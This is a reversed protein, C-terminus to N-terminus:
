SFVRLERWEAVMQEPCSDAKGFRVVRELAAVSMRVEAITTDSAPRATWGLGAADLLAGMEVVGPASINLVPPLNVQACLASLVRALTQPGIYSRRPTRGDALRDLVFGPHWRGLIADAGAVNGIRLATVQVGLQAGLTACAEEMDAKARGYESVPKLPAAENLPGPQDGYVAASSAVLVRAGTEAGARIAATALAINDAMRADACAAREPTVGSLCLIVDRGQVARTLAQPRALPDVIAWNLTHDARPQRAQWLVQDALAAEMWCRQLM